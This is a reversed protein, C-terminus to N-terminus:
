IKAKRGPTKAEFIEDADYCLRGAENVYRKQRGHQMRACIRVYEVRPLTRLEVLRM